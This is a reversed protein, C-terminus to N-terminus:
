CSYHLWLLGHSFCLIDRYKTWLLYSIIVYWSVCRWPLWGPATQMCTCVYFRWCLTVTWKALLWCGRWCHATFISECNRLSVLLRPKSQSQQHHRPGFHIWLGKPVVIRAVLIAVSFCLWVYSYPLCYATNNCSLGALPDLLLQSRSMHPTILEDTQM